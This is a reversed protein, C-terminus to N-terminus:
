IFIIIYLVKFKDACNRNPSLYMEHNCSGCSVKTLIIGSNQYLKILDYIKIKNFEDPNCIDWLYQYETM